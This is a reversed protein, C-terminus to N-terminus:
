PVPTNSTDTGGEGRYTDDGLSSGGIIIDDGLGGFVEDGAGASLSTEALGVLVDRSNVEYGIM